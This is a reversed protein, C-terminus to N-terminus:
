WTGQTYVPFPGDWDLGIYIGKKLAVARIVLYMLDAGSVFGIIASITAGVPGGIATALGTLAAIIAAPGIQAATYFTSIVEDYDFYLKWDSVHFYPQMSSNKSQLMNDLKTIFDNSLNYKEKLNTIDTKLSLVGNKLEFCDYIKSLDQMFHSVESTKYASIFNRNEGRNNVSSNNEYNALLINSPMLVIILVLTIITIKQLYRRM